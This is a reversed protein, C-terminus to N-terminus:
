AVESRALVSGCVWEVVEREVTVTPANPDPVEVLEVGVVKRECVESRPAVVKLALADGFQRSLEFNGDAGSGAYARKSWGGATASFAAVQEASLVILTWDQLSGVYGDWPLSPNAEIFDALARLSAVQQEATYHM